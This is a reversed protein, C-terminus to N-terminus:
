EKVGAVHYCWSQIFGSEDGRGAVTNYYRKWYSALGKINGHKPLREPVRRYHLRCMVAALILDTIMEEPEPEMPWRRSLCQSIEPQFNIYNRWIDHYTAPEMQFVGLAPGGGLQRVYCGLGSEQAATGLLLAEAEPGSMDLLTIAPRIIYQRFQDPDIGV